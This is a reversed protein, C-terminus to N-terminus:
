HIKKIDTNKEKLKRQKKQINQKQHMKTNETNRYKKQIKHM